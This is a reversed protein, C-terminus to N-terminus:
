GFNMPAQVEHGEYPLLWFFSCVISVEHVRWIGGAELLFDTVLIWTEGWGSLGL